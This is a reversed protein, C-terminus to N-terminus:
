LQFHKSQMWLLLPSLLVVTPASTSKRHPSISHAFVFCLFLPSPIPDVQRCACRLGRRGVARVACPSLEWQAM